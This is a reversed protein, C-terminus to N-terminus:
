GHRSGFLRPQKSAVVLIRGPEVAENAAV